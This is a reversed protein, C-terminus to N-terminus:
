SIRNVSYPFYLQSFLLFATSWVQSICGRPFFASVLCSATSCPPRLLWPWSEVLTLAGAGLEWDVGTRVLWQGRKLTRARVTTTTFYNRSFNPLNCNQFLQTPGVQWLGGAAKLCCQITPITLDVWEVVRDSLSWVFSAHSASPCKCAEVHCCANLLWCTQLFFVNKRELPKEPTTLILLGSDFDSLGRDCKKSACTSLLKQLRVQCDSGTISLTRNAQLTSWIWMYTYHIPITFIWRFIALVISKFDSACTHQTHVIPLLISIWKFIALVISLRICMHRLCMQKNLFHKNALIWTLFRAADVM